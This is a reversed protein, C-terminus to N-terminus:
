TPASPFHKFVPQNVGTVRSIQAAPALLHDQEDALKGLAAQSLNYDAVPVALQIGLDAVTDRQHSGHVVRNVSQAEPAVDYPMGM